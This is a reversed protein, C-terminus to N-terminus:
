QKKSPKALSILWDYCVMFGNYRNTWNVPFHNKNYIDGSWEKAKKKADEKSPMKSSAHAELGDEICKIIWEKDIGNMQDYNAHSTIRAYVNEAEKKVNM